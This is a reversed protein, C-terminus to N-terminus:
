RPVTDLLLFRDPRSEGTFYSNASAGALMMAVGALFAVLKEHPVIAFTVAAQIGLLPVLLVGRAFLSDLFIQAKGEPRAM